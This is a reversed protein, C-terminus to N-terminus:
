GKILKKWWASKGKKEETKLQEESASPQAIDEHSNYLIVAEQHEKPADNIPKSAEKNNRRRDFRGRRGRRRFEKNGGRSSSFESNQAVQEEQPEEQLMDNEEAINEGVEPTEQLAPEEKTTTIKTREFRYDSVCKVNNDASIIIELKYKAELDALAKRKHNLM